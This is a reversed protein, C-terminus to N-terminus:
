SAAVKSDRVYAELARRVIRQFPRDERVAIGKIKERLVRPVKVGLSILEGPDAAAAKIAKRM